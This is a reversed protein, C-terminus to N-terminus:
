PRNEWKCVEGCFRSSPLAAEAAHPLSAVFNRLQDTPITTSLTSENEFAMQLTGPNGGCELCRDPLPIEHGLVRLFFIRYTKEAGNGDEGCVTVSAM